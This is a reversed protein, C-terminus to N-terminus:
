VLVLSKVFCNLENEVKTGTYKLSLLMVISLVLFLGYASVQMITKASSFSVVLITEVAIWQIFMSLRYEHNAGTLVPLIIKRKKFLLSFPSVLLGASVVYFLPTVSDYIMSIALVVLSVIFMLGATFPASLLFERTTM